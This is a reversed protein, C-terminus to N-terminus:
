LFYVFVTILFNEIKLIGLVNAINNSAFLLSFALIFLSIFFFLPILFFSIHFSIISLFHSKSSNSKCIVSLFHYRFFFFSLFFLTLPKNLHSSNFLFTRPFLGM